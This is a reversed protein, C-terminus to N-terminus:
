FSMPKSELSERSKWFFKGAGDGIVVPAMVGICNIMGLATCEQRLILVPVLDM